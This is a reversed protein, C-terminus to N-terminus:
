VLRNKDYDANEHAMKRRVYNLCLLAVVLLSLGLLPKSWPALRARVGVTPTVPQLAVMQQREQLQAALGQSVAGRAAMRQNYRQQAVQTKEQNSQVAQDFLLQSRQQEEALTKPLPGQSIAAGGRFSISLTLLAIVIGTGHYNFISHALRSKM